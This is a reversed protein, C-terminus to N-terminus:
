TMLFYQLDQPHDATLQIALCVKLDYQLTESLYPYVIVKKAWNHLAQSPTIERNQMDQSFSRRDGAM